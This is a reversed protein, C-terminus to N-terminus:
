VKSTAPETPKRAAGRAALRVAPEPREILPARHQVPEPGARHYTCEATLIRVGISLDFHPRLLLALATIGANPILEIQVQVVVDLVTVVRQDARNIVVARRHRLEILAVRLDDDALFEDWPSAEFAEVVNVGPKDNLM